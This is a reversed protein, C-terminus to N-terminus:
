FRADRTREMDPSTRDRAQSSMYSSRLFVPQPRHEEPCHDLAIQRRKNAPANARAAKTQLLM